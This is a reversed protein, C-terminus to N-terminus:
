DEKYFEDTLMDNLPSTFYDNEIYLEYMSSLKKQVKEDDLQDEVGLDFAFNAIRFAEYGYNDIIGKLNEIIEKVDKM